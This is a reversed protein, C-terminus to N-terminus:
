FLRGQEVTGQSKRGQGTSPLGVEPPDSGVMGRPPAVALGSRRLISELLRANVIGQDRHNTNALLHVVGVRDALRQIRPAWEEMEAPTYYWDFKQSPRLGKQEWTAANRGHFRVVALGATAEALPPVSSAFGQPEDVCVFPLQHDRLFGLTDDARGETLWGANRFEVAVTYPQLRGAAELIYDTNASSPAVWPPFQLLVAGLRGAQHLIALIERFQRWVEDRIEAPLDRYFVSPKDGPLAAAIDPPFARRQTPHLTFLSFSKVDFVFGAPTRETWQQAINPKPIAYYTSDVEVLPFQSAYYRLRSEADSAGPPYFTGARLLEPDTWSCAGTLIVGM